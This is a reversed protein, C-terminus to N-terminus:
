FVMGPLISIIGPFDADRFGHPTAFDFTTLEIGSKIAMDEVRSLEDIFSDTHYFEYRQTDWDTSLINM